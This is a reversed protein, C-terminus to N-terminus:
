EEKEEDKIIDKWMCMFEGSALEIDKILTQTRELAANNNKYSKTDDIVDKFAKINGLIERNSDEFIKKIKEQSDQVIKMMTEKSEDFVYVVDSDYLVWCSTKEKIKKELEKIIDDSLLSLDIMTDSIYSPKILGFTMIKILGSLFDKKEEKRFIREDKFEYLPIQKKM